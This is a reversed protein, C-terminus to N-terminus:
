VLLKTFVYLCIVSIILNSHKLGVEGFRNKVFSTYRLGM